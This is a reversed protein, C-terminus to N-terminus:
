RAVINNEPPNQVIELVTQPFPAGGVIRPTALFYGAIAEEDFQQTLPKAPNHRYWKGYSPDFWHRVGLPGM